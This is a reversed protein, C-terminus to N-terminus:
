SLCIPFLLNKIADCVDPNLDLFAPLNNKNQLPVIFARKERFMRYWRMVVKGNKTINIGMRIGAKAMQCCKDWSWGNMNDLALNLAMCLLQCKQRVCHKQYNSLTNEDIEPSGAIVALYATESANAATLITIQARISERTDEESRPRFLIKAETSTWYNCMEQPALPCHCASSATPVLNAGDPSSVHNEPAQAASAKLELLKRKKIAPEVIIPVASLEVASTRTVKSNLLEKADDICEFWKTEKNIFPKEGNRTAYYFWSTTKSGHVRYKDQFIGVHDIPINTRLDMEDQLHRHKRNNSSCILEKSSFTLSEYFICFKNIVAAWAEASWWKNQFEPCRSSKKFCSIIYNQDAPM